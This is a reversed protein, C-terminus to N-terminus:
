LKSGEEKVEKERRRLWRDDLEDEIRTDCRASLVESRDDLGGGGVWV